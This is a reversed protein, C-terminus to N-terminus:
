PRTKLRARGRSDQKEVMFWWIADDSELEKLGFEGFDEDEEKSTM